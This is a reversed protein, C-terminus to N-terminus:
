GPLPEPNARKQLTSVALPLISVPAGATQRDPSTAAMAASQHQLAARHHPLRQATTVIKGRGAPLPDFFAEGLPAELM